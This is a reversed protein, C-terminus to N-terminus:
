GYIAVVLVILTLHAKDAWNRNAVKVWMQRASSVIMRSTFCYAVRFRRDTAILSCSVAEYLVTMNM